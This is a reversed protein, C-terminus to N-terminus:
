EEISQAIYLINKGVFEGQPDSPANGNEEVGFRRRVVPADTGFLADIESASWVYFAGERKEPAHPEPSSAQPTPSKAEPTSPPELSDADEASFFAGDPATLDSLVYDLTDEAVMAYFSEGTAQSAELAALVLQSQDYLM